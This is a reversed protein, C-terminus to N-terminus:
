PGEGGNPPQTTTFQCCLPVLVRCVRADCRGIRLRMARGRWPRLDAIRLQFDGIGM